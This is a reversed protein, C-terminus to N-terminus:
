HVNDASAVIVKTRAAMNFPKIAGRAFFTTGRIRGSSDSPSQQLQTIINYNVCVQM